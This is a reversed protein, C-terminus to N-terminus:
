KQLRNLWKDIKQYLAPQKQILKKIRARVRLHYRIRGSLPIRYGLGDRIVYVCPSCVGCPTSNKRPNLCFWTQNLLDEYEKDRAIQRMELKTMNLIPFRYYKFLTYEDTNAYKDSIVYGDGLDGAPIVFPLLIFYATTYADIASEFVRDAYQACFRALWEYQSGMYHGKLLRDFASTINPNPPIENLHVVNIPQLLRSAYPYRTIIERRLNTMTRLEAETSKRGPDIIYHPRIEIRKHILEILRFTSDWGGTWFCDVVSDNIKIM